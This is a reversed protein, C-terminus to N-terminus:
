SQLDLLKGDYVSPPLMFEGNKLGTNTDFRKRIIGSLVQGNYTSRYYILRDHGSKAVIEKLVQTKFPCKQIYISDLFSKWNLIINQSVSVVIFPSPKCRSKRIVEEFEEPIEFPSRLNWLGVNKDCELYSHGRVPFTIKIERIGHIKNNVIFHIFRFIVFNKNQGGASDCFIELEEIDDELYTNIFHFLFSAM